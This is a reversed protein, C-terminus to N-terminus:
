KPGRCDMDCLVRVVVFSREGVIHFQLVLQLLFAGGDRIFHQLRPDILRECVRVVQIDRADQGLWLVAVRDM